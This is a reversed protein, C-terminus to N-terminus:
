IKLIFIFHENNAIESPLQSSAAIDTFDTVFEEMDAKEANIVGTTFYISQFRDASLNDLTDICREAAAKLDIVETSFSNINNNDTVYEDILRQGAHLVYRDFGLRANKVRQLQVGSASAEATEWYGNAAAVFTYDVYTFDLLLSNYFHFANGPNSAEAQILSVYQRIANGATTGYYGTCFTDILTDISLDPNEQLKMAVWTNMEWTASTFTNDQNEFFTGEMGNDRCYRLDDAM